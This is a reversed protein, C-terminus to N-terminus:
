GKFEEEKAKQILENLKETLAAIAADKTKFGPGFLVALRTGRGITNSDRCKAFWRWKKSVKGKSDPISVMERWISGENVDDVSVISHATKESNKVPTLTIQQTM